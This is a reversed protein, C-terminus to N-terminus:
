STPVADARADEVIDAPARPYEYLRVEDIRGAFFASHFWEGVGFELPFWERDTPAGTAHAVMEGNVFLDLTGRSGEYVIAAHTWRGTPVIESDSTVEIDNGGTSLPGGEGVIHGRIRPRGDRLALDIGMNNGGGGIVLLTERTEGKGQLGLHSADPAFWLELTAGAKLSVREAVHLYPRIEVSNTRGDCVLASGDIGVDFRPAAGRITVPFHLPGADFASGDLPLRIVAEKRAIRAARESREADLARDRVARARRGVVEHNVTVVAVIAAMALVLAAYRPRPAAKASPSGVAFADSVDSRDLLVYLYASAGLALMAQIFRSWTGVDPTFAVVVGDLPFLASILVVAKM